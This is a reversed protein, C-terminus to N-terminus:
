EYELIYDDIHAKVKDAAKNKELESRKSRLLKINYYKLDPLVSAKNQKIAQDMLTNLIASNEFDIINRLLVKIDLNDSFKCWIAFAELEDINLKRTALLMKVIVLNKEEYAKSIPTNGLEDQMNLNIAGEDYILEFARNNDGEEIAKILALGNTNRIEEIYIRVKETIETKEKFKGLFKNLHHIKSQLACSFDAQPDAGNELLLYAIDYRQDSLAIELPAMGRDKVNNPNAGHKLLLAVCLSSGEEIAKNLIYEGEILTNVTIQENDLFIALYDSQDKSIIPELIKMNENNRPDLRAGAIILKEFVSRNEKLYAFYLPSGARWGRGLRREIYIELNPGENILADVDQGEIIADILEEGKNVEYELIYDDIHAKVKDAAKNKELESRKSRLLKINYKSLSPLLSAKNQEIAQDMLSDLIEKNEFKITSNLLYRIDDDDSFRCWIAFAELEDINLKRTGLLEKLIYTNNKEYAKSIPTNGLEDQFNLNISDEDEILEFAQDDDGREIANILALGNTNKIGEIHKNIISTVDNAENNKICNILTEIEYFSLDVLLEPRNRKIIENLLNNSPKTYYNRSDVNIEKFIINRIQIDDEYKFYLKILEESSINLQLDSELFFKLISTKDYNKAMDIALEIFNPYISHNRTNLTVPYSKQNVLMKTIELDNKLIAWELISIGRIDRANPNARKEILYEVEKVDGQCVAVKLAYDRNEAQLNLHDNFIDNGLLEEPMLTGVALLFNVIFKNKEEIAIKFESNLDIEKHQSKFLELVIAINENELALYIESKANETLNIEAGAKLLIKVKDLDEALIALRLATNGGNNVINPNAGAEILKQLLETSELSGSASVEHLITCGNNPNQNNLLIDNTIISNVRDELSANNQTEIHERYAVEREKLFKEILNTVNNQVNNGNGDKLKLMKSLTVSSYDKLPFALLDLNNRRVALELLNDKEQQTLKVKKKLLKILNIEAVKGENDLIDPNAGAEILQKVIKHSGPKNALHHLITKGDKDQYNLWPNQTLINQLKDEWKADDVLEFIEEALAKNKSIFQKILKIVRNFIYPNIRKEKKHDTLLKQLATSSYYKFDLFLKNEDGTEYAEQLMIEKEKETFRMSNNLFKNVLYKEAIEVWEKFGIKVKDYIIVKHDIFLELLELAKEENGINNIIDQIISLNKGQNMEINPNAGAELLLKCIDLNMLEVAKGLPSMGTLDVQQLLNSNAKVIKKIIDIYFDNVAQNDLDNTAQIVELYIILTHLINGNENISDLKIGKEILLNFLAIKQEPTILNHKVIAFLISEHPNHDINSLDEDRLSNLFITIEEFNSISIIEEFDKRSILVKDVMM